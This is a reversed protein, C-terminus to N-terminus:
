LAHGWPPSLQASFHATHPCSHWSRPSAAWLPPLDELRTLGAQSSSLLHHAPPLSGLPLQPDSPKTSLRIPLKSKMGGVTSAMLINLSTVPEWATKLFCWNPQQSCCPSYWTLASFPLGTLLIECHHPCSVTDAQLCPRHFPPSIYISLWCFKSIPQIRHCVFFPLRPHSQNQSIYSVSTSFVLILVNQFLFNLKTKCTNFKLHWFFLSLALFSM